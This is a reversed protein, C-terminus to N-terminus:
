AHPALSRIRKLVRLAFLSLILVGFFLPRVLNGALSFPNGKVALFYHVLDLIAALYVLYHLRHWNRGLKKKWQDQSTVALIVLILGTILGFWIFPKDLYSVALLPLDFGYDLGVLIM